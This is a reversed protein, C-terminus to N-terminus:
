WTLSRCIPLQHYGIRFRFRDSMNEPAVALETAHPQEFFFEVAITQVRLKADRPIAQPRTRLRERASRKVCQQAVRDINTFNVMFARSIWSLMLRNDCAAYPFPHLFEQLQM